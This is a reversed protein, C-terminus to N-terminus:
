RVRRLRLQTSLGEDFSSKTAVVFYKHTAPDMSMFDYDVSVVDGIQFLPNGYISVELEDVGTAWHGEIWDAIAQAMGKSQIFDGSLEADIVGRSRMSTENEVIISEEESVELYRGLVAIVQQVAGDAGPYSLTDEGALIANNRSTNAVIFKAQFPTGTYEVISSYWSNTNFLFSYQVPAPDLKVDFERVEHVYPGFEDFLYRNHKYTEKTQKKKKTKKWRTELEYVYEKQFRNGRVGGYKLDYFGYDDIPAPVNRAIAYFYEFVVNSKGRAYMAVGGGAPQVAIGTMHAFAVRKGNLWANINNGDIYVDLDYFINPAIAVAGSGIAHWAGNIRSFITVENRTQRDKSSLSNSLCIEVYYGSSGNVYFGIGGRQSTSSANSALM